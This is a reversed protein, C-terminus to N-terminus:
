CNGPVFMIIVHPHTEMMWTLFEQSRHVSYVNIYLIVCQCTPLGHEAKQSEIFPDFIRTVCEKFTWITTSYSTGGSFSHVFGLGLSRQVASHSAKSTSASTTGSWVTQFPFLKGSLSCGILMTFARKEEKGILPVTKSGKEEWTTKPGPQLIMNAEDVNVIVSDPIHHYQKAATLRCFVELGLESANDPIKQAAKTGARITWNLSQLLFKWTWSESVSFQDGTPNIPINFIDPAHQQIFATTLAKATLTKIAEGTKHIARLQSKIDDHLKGHKNLVAPQGSSGRVVWADEVLRM